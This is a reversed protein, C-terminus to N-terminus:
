TSQTMDQTMRALYDLQHTHLTNNIRYLALAVTTHCSVCKGYCDTNVLTRVRIAEGERSLLEQESQRERGRERVGDMQREGRTRLVTQRTGSHASQQRHSERM